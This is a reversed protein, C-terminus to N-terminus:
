AINTLPAGDPAERERSFVFAACVRSVLLALANVQVVEGARARASPPSCKLRMFWAKKRRQDIKLIRAPLWSSSQQM